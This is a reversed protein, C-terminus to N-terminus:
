EKERDKKVRKYKGFRNDNLMKYHYMAFPLLNDLYFLFLLISKKSKQCLQLTLLSTVHKAPLHACCITHIFSKYKCSSITTIVIM